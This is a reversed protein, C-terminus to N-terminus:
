RTIRSMAEIQPKEGAATCRKPKEGAATTHTERRAATMQIPKPNLTQRRAANCRKTSNAKQRWSAHLHCPHRASKITAHIGQHRRPRRLSIQHHCPHWSPPTSAMITAHNGFTPMIALLDFPHQTTTHGEFSHTLHISLRPTVKSHHWFTALQRPYQPTHPSTSRRTAFVFCQNSAYTKLRSADHSHASTLAISTNHLSSM